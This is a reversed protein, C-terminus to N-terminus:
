VDQSEPGSDPESSEEEPEVGEYEVAAADAKSGDWDPIVKGKEGKGSYDIWYFPEDRVDVHVFQTRPYYGVGGAGWARAFDVLSKAPLYPHRLDAAMGKTHYSTPKTSGGPERYGSSVFLVGDHALAMAYLLRALMPDVEHEADTKHYRLVKAFLALAEPVLAGDEDYPDVVLVERLNMAYIAVLGEPRGTAAYM